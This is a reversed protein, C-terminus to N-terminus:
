LHAEGGSRCGAEAERDDLRHRSFHRPAEGLHECETQENLGAGNHESSLTTKTLRGLTKGEAKARALRAQTREVILDREMEAVAALVTVLLKGDTSTLDVKGLLLM